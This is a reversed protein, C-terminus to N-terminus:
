VKGLKKKITAETINEKGTLFLQQVWNETEQSWSSGTHLSKASNPMNTVCVIILSRTPQRFILQLAVSVLATPQNQNTYVYIQATELEGTEKNGLVPLLSTFIQFAKHM